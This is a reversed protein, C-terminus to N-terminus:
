RNRSTQNIRYPEFEDFGLRGMDQALHQATRLARRRKLDAVWLYNKGKADKFYFSIPHDNKKANVTKTDHSASFIITRTARYSESSTSLGIYANDPPIPVVHEPDTDKKDLRVFLFSGQNEIRVSDCSAQLCMLYIEDEGKIITGLGLKPVWENSLCLISGPYSQVGTLAAFQDMNSRATKLNNSFLSSFSKKFNKDSPPNPLMGGKLCQLTCLGDSVMKVAHGIELEYTQPNEEDGYLLTLAEPKESDKTLSRIRADIAPAGTHAKGVQQKDITGKLESLVINVAYEEADEPNDIMARHHFFPGDMQGVFKSLVHHTSNRISAITALAANSLLGESLKAFESQLRQPLDGESVQNDSISPELRIGRKKSLCVIRVGSESKIESVTKIFTPEEKIEEPVEELVKDMITDQSAIDGTYIAILRLRGRQGIDKQLINRIIKLAAKGRDNYIEWDLCVIDAVQAAKVVQAQFCEGKKPRLVSCILGQNMANDILSKANFPYRSGSNGTGGQEKLKDDPTTKAIGRGPHRLNGPPAEEPMDQSAQDDVFIMTQAFMQAADLRLDDFDRLNTAM